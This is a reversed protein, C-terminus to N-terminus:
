LKGRRAKEARDTEKKLLREADKWAKTAQKHAPSMATGRRHSRSLEFARQRLADAKVELASLSMPAPSRAREGRGGGPALTVGLRKTEASVAAATGPKLAVGNKTAVVFDAVADPNQLKSLPVKSLAEALRAQNSLALPNESAGSGTAGGGVAGGAGASAGGSKGRGGM